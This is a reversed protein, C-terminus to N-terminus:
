GGLADQLPVGGAACGSVLVCGLHHNFFAMSAGTGPADGQVEDDFQDAADCIRRWGTGPCRTGDLGSCADGHIEGDGARVGLTAIQGDIVM